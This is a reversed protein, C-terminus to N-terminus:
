AQPRTCIPSGQDTRLPLMTTEVPGVYRYWYCGDEEKLQVSSLDQNPGAMAVVEEPLNTIFGNQQSGSIETCATLASISIMALGLIFRM